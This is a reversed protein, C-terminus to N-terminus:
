LKFSCHHSSASLQWVAM